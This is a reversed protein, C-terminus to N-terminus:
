DVVLLLPFCLLLLCVWGCVRVCGKSGKEQLRQQEAAQLGGERKGEEWLWLVCGGGRVARGNGTQGDSGKLKM